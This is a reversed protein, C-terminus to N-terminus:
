KIPVYIDIVLRDPTSVPPDTTYQEVFMDQAEIGHDDIFNTIAEYTTDM